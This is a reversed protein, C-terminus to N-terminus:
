SNFHASKVHNKLNQATKYTKECIDCIYPREGTHKRRHLQLKWNDPCIYHCVECMYRKKGEIYTVRFNRAYELAYELTYRATYTEEDSRDNNLSKESVPCKFLQDWRFQVWENNIPCSFPKEGTHVRRHQVLAHNNFMVKHCFECQYRATTTKTVAGTTAM